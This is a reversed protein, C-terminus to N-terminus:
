VSFKPGFDILFDGPRISNLYCFKPTLIQGDSKGRDINSENSLAPSDSSHTNLRWSGCM